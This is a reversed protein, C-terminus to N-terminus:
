KMTRPVCMTEKSVVRCKYKRSKHNEPLEHNKEVMIGFIRGLHITTGSMRADRLVDRWAKPREEDWVKKKKLRTWEADRAEWCTGSPLVPNDAIESKSMPRAVCAPLQFSSRPRKPRHADKRGARPRVPMSPPCPRPYRRTGPRLGTKNPRRSQPVAPTAPADDKHFTKREEISREFEQILKTIDGWLGEGEPDEPAPAGASAEGKGQPGLNAYTRRWEERQEANSGRWLEIPIEKPRSSKMIKNGHEDAPFRRGIADIYWRQAPGSGIAPGELQGVEPAVQPEPVPVPEDVLIDFLLEDSMNIQNQNQTSMEPPASGAQDEAEKIAQLDAPSLTSHLPVGYEDYLTSPSQRLEHAAERGDLTMNAREYRPKLPYCIGRKGLDVQETVHPHIRFETGAADVDLNAGVFDDIDAVLYQGNWKGGPVLRYGLFIGYSRTPGAKSNTYKTPAPLFWVGCGLTIAKGKFSEGFRSKWASNGDEDETINEIHCFYPSAYPWFCAQLGAQCLLVRSGYLIDQNCREIVANSHHVGPQSPEWNIGLLKIAKKLSSYNDSYILKVRQNGRVANLSTYTDMTDRTTVPFSYKCRTGLDLVNLVDPVGDVGKNGFWDKMFVHDCTIM